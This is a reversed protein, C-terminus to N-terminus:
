PCDKARRYGAQQAEAEDLFVVVSAQNMAAYGKCDPVRYVKSRRNGHVAGDLAPPYPRPPPKGPTPTPTRPMPRSM